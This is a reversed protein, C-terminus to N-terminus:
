DFAPEQSVKLGAYPLADLDGLFNSYPTVQLLPDSELQYNRRMATVQIRIQDDTATSELNTEIERLVLAARHRDVGTPFDAKFTKIISKVRRSRLRHAEAQRAKWLASSLTKTLAKFNSELARIGAPRREELRVSEVYEIVEKAFGVKEIHGGNFRADVAAEVAAWIGKATSLQSSIDSDSFAAVEDESAGLIRRAYGRVAHAAVQVPILDEIEEVAVKKDTTLTVEDAWEPIVVIFRAPLIAKDDAEGKVLKTRADVGAQDGDLLAVCPPKHSDRGRALYAMYPVSSASGAPVITVENLDMLGAAGPRRRLFRTMGTILVQDALGEVILNEGGIFATEAVYAGISSRLPEYRNRAVDRVVRTGEDGSGKDLVRIRHAANKNILFPSHTVYVVQDTRSADDPSAFDELIRLLDQQGASSLYADPEDMLLVESRDPPRQHALLQVYYSMFYTLGRSREAFSYETGTRDRIKFVLEREAVDIRLEFDSDQRWWRAFNLRQSLSDNMKGVLGAIQGQKGLKVARELEEFREPDIQAVDVLLKRALDASEEAEVLGENDVASSAIRSLEDGFSAANGEAALEEFKEVAEIRVRRDNLVGPDRGVLASLSVTDPIPVDTKLTFATPLRAEVADLQTDSAELDAGSQGILRRVGGDLRLLTASNGDLKLISALEEDRERELEFRIGFEPVRGEGRQVSYVGSYRCFDDRVVREGSLARELAGILHSKGSENAGVIATVSPDLPVRIFPFWAGDIMEWEERKAEDNVKREYDFNFSRFFRIYLM